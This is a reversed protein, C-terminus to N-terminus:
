NAGILDKIYFTKIRKSNPQDNFNWKLNRKPTSDSMESGSNSACFVSAEGECRDELLHSCGFSKHDNVLSPRGETHMKVCINKLVNLKEPCGDMLTNKRTQYKGAIMRHNDCITFQESSNPTHPYNNSLNWSSNKHPNFFAFNTKMEGTLQGNASFKVEASTFSKLIDESSSIHSQYDFTKTEYKNVSTKYYFNFMKRLSDGQPLEYNSTFDPKQSCSQTWNEPVSFVSLPTQKDKLDKGVGTGSDNCILTTPSSSHPLWFVNIQNENQPVSSKEKEIISKTVSLASKESAPLESIHNEVVTSEPRSFADVPSAFSSARLIRNISSISPLHTVSCIGDRLLRVRIEWAFIGPNRRKYNRISKVVTPTSM